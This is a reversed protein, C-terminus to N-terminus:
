PTALPVMKLGTGLRCLTVIIIIIGTSFPWTPPKQLNRNARAKKLLSTSEFHQALNNGEFLIIM